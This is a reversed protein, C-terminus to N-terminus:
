DKRYLGLEHSSFYNEQPNPNELRVKPAPNFRVVQWRDAQATLLLLNSFEGQRPLKLRFQQCADDLAASSVPLRRAATNSLNMQSHAPNAEGHVPALEGDNIQALVMQLSSDGYRTTYHKGEESWHRQRGMGIEFDMAASAGAAAM